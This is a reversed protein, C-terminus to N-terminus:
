LGAKQRKESSISEKLSQLRLRQAPGNVLRKWEEEALVWFVGIILGAVTAGLVILSRVPFSRKDPVIARDVIQVVAGQKAEDVKAIEYQRALLEFVTEQYKVERLRRIYEIGSEQLNGKPVLANTAGESNAGMKSEQARLSALEQEAMQLAPNDGTAFSRMAQIQAEKAAVQARLDAILQITAQAQADLQILGTKQGTKKLDEEAKALNEKAQGLQEEFFLRRQSAETVAIKASFKKFEDVYGNAMETARRADSDIVSIRILGDKAGNEINVRSELKKRADSKRKQHYLDILHFRDVMADEVTRSKLLAVQLDNPNKLGLSGGALSAMSGLNGLQAMLAAGASGGQQPPLISTSATYRYPLLLSIIVSALCIGFTIKAIFLRRRVIVILLSMLSIEEDESILVSDTDREAQGLM